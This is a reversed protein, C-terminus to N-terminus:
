MTRDTIIAIVRLGFLARHTDETRARRAEGSSQIRRPGIKVREHQLAGWGTSLEDGGCVHVIIWPTRFADQSGCQDLAARGRRQPGRRLRPPSTATQGVRIARRCRHRQRREGM